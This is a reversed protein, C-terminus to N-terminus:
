PIKISKEISNIATVFGIGGKVNSYTPKTEIFANDAGEIAQAAKSFALYEASYVAVYVRIEDAFANTTEIRGAQDVVLGIEKESSTFCQSNYGISRKGQIGSLEPFFAYCKNSGFDLNSSSIEINETAIPAFTIKKGKSFAVGSTVYYSNKPANNHILLQILAPQNLTIERKTWQFRFNTIPKDLIIDPPITTPASLAKGINPVEAEIVYTKEPKLIYSPLEYMGNKLMLTGVRDGDEWLTVLANDYFTKDPKQDTVAWTKGVYVSPFQNAILTSNLVIKVSPLPLVFLSRNQCAGLSLIIALCIYLWHARM